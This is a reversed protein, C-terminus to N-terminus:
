VEFFLQITEASDAKPGFLGQWLRDDPGREDVNANTDTDRDFASSSLHRLPLSLRAGAEGSRRSSHPPSPGLRAICSSSQSDTLHPSPDSSISPKPSPFFSFSMFFLTTTKQDKFDCSLLRVLGVKTGDLRPRAEMSSHSRPNGYKPPGALISSAACHFFGIGWRAWWGMGGVGM